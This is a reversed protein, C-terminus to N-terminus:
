QLNTIDLPEYHRDNTDKQMEIFGTCGTFRIEAIMERFVDTHEFDKGLQLAADIAHIAAWYRDYVWCTYFIYSNENFQDIEAEVWKGYEEVFSAQTAQIAGVAIDLREETGISRVDVWYDSVFMYDGRKVGMDVFKQLILSAHAPTAFIAVIKNDLGMVEDVYPDLVSDDKEAAVYDIFNNKNSVTIGLDPATEFITEGMIVTAIENDILM